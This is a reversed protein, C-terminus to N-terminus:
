IKKILMPIDVAERSTVLLAHNPALRLERVAAAIAGTKHKHESAIITYANCRQQIYQVYM